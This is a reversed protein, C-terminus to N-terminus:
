HDSGKERSGGTCRLQDLRAAIAQWALVGADDGAIGLARIREAVYAAAGERHQREVENACAWLEWDSLTMSGRVPEPGV